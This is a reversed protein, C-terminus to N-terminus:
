SAKTAELAPFDVAPNEFSLGVPSLVLFSKLCGRVLHNELKLAM